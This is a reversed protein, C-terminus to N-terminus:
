LKQSKFFSWIVESADIDRSTKGIVREPLYQLGGPWTHGGGYIIYLIVRTGDENNVYEKRSVRTGDDPDRDPEETVVPVPSCGNRAVWYGVSQEVSLVTGLMERGSHGYIEGGEFPVVPDDV